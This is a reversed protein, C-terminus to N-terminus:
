RSTPARRTGWHAPNLTGIGAEWGLQPFSPVQLLGLGGGWSALPTPTPQPLPLRPQFNPFIASLPGVMPPSLTGSALQPQQLRSAGCARALILPAARLPSLVHKVTARSAGLFMQPVALM